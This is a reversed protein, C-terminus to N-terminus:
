EGAAALEVELARTDQSIRIIVFEAFDPCGKRWAAASTARFRPANAKRRSTKKSAGLSARGDMPTPPNEIRVEAVRDVIRRIAIGKAAQSWATSTACAPPAVSDGSASREGAAGSVSGSM